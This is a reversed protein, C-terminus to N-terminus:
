GKDQFGTMIMLNNQDFLLDKSLPFCIPVAPIDQTAGRELQIISFDYSNPKGENWQPHNIIAKANIMEGQGFIKSGFLIYLDKTSKQKEVFILTHLHCIHFNNGEVWTM